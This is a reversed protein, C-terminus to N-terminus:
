PRDVQEFDGLRLVAGERRQVKARISYDPGWSNDVRISIRASGCLGQAALSFRSAFFLDDIRGWEVAHSRNRLRFAIFPM